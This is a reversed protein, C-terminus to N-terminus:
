QGVICIKKEGIGRVLGWGCDTAGKPSDISADLLLTGADGSFLDNAHEVPCIDTQGACHNPNGAAEKPTTCATQAAGNICFCSCRAEANLAGFASVLLATLVLVRMVM